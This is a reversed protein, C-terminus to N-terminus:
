KPCQDKKDLTTAGVLGEFKAEINIFSDRMQTLLPIIRGGIEQDSITATTLGYVRMDERIAANTEETKSATQAVDALTGRLNQVTLEPLKHDSRFKAEIENAKAISNKATNSFQYKLNSKFATNLNFSFTPGYKSSIGFANTTNVLPSVNTGLAKELSDVMATIHCDVCGEIMKYPAKPRNEKKINVCFMAEIATAQQSLSEDDKWGEGFLFTRAADFDACFETPLCRPIDHQTGVVNVGLTEDGTASASAGGSQTSADFFGEPCAPANSEAYKKLTGGVSPGPYEPSQLVTPLAEPEQGSIGTGKKPVSGPPCKPTNNNGNGNNEGTDGPNGNNQGGGATEGPDKFTVAEPDICQDNSGSAETQCYQNCGDGSQKNGDDCKEGLLIDVIGNGCSPNVNSSGPGDGNDANPDSPPVCDPPLGGETSEDTVTIGEDPGQTTEAPPTGTGEEAPPAGEAPAGGGGGEDKNPFSYVDQMWQAKSGFLVIEILNLDVILDFPPGSTLSITGDWYEESAEFKYKLSASSRRIVNEKEYANKIDSFVSWGGLTQEMSKGSPLCADQVAKPQKGKEEDSYKLYSECITGALIEKIVDKDLSFQSALTSVIEADATENNNLRIGCYIQKYHTDIFSPNCFDDALAHNACLAMGTFTLLGKIFFNIKKV